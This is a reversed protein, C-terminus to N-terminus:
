GLDTMSFCPLQLSPHRVSLRAEEKKQQPSAELENGDVEEQYLFRPSTSGWVASWSSPNHGNDRHLAAHIGAVGSCPGLCPMAKQWM